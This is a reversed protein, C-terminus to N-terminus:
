RSLGVRRTRLLRPTTRLQMVGPSSTSSSAIQPLQSRMPYASSGTCGPPAELDWDVVIVDLDNRDALRFAVNALAMSRGVGGKFSYFTVVRRDPRTVNM